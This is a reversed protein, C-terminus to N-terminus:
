GLLEERLEAILELMEEARRRTEPESSTVRSNWNQNAATLKKRIVTKSDGDEIGFFAKKDTLGFAEFGDNITVIHIDRMKRYQDPDIGLLGVIRDLEKLEAKDAKGDASMVAMCLELADYKQPESALDNLSSCISNLSTGGRSAKKYSREIAANLDRKIEDASGEPALAIKKKAWDKIIEGEPKDISGDAASVHFALEIAAAYVRPRNEDEDLWGPETVEHTFTTEAVGYLTDGGQAPYGYEFMTRDVTGDALISLFRLKLKRRGKWPCQLCFIPFEIMEVWDPFYNSGSLDEPGMRVQFAPSNEEQFAPLNSLVVPDFGEEHTQTDFLHFFFEVAASGYFPGPVQGKLEVSLTPFSEGDITRSSKRVRVSLPPASSSSPTGPSYSTSSGKFLGGILEIVWGIFGLGFFIALGWLCGNMM